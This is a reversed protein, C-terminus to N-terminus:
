RCLIARPAAWCRNHTASWCWGKPPGAPHDILLEIQGAPGAILLPNRPADSM